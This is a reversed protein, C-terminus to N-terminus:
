IWHLPFSLTLTHRSM